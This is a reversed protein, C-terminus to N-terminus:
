AIPKDSESHDNKAFYHDAAYCFANLWNETADRVIQINPAVLDFAHFAGRYIDVRVNLDRIYALTEACFSEITGVFSYTLPPEAFDTTRAPAVRIPYASVVSKICISFSSDFSDAVRRLSPSLNIKGRFLTRLTWPGRITM